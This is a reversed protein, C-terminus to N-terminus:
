KETDKALWYVVRALKKTTTILEVLINKLQANTATPVAASMTDFKAGVVAWSPLNSLIAQDRLSPTRGDNVPQADLVAKVIPEAVLIAAELATQMAEARAIIDEETYNEPLPDVEAPAAVAAYTVYVGGYPRNLVRFDVQGNHISIIQVERGDNLTIM